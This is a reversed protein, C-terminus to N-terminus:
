GSFPTILKKNKDYFSVLLIGKDEDKIKFEYYVVKSTDIFGDFDKLKMQGKKDVKVTKAKM